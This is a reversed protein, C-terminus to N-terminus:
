DRVLAIVAMITPIVAFIAMVMWLKGASFANSNELKKLRNDFAEMILATSEKTAYSRREETIQARFLNMSELRIFMSDEAKKIAQENLAFHQASFAAQSDLKDEVSKIRTDIYDKLSIDDPM